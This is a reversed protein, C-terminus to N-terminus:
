NERLIVAPDIRGAQLAPLTAAAVALGGLITAAGVFTTLDHPSIGYVLASAFRSAWVSFVAGVIVGAGVLAAARAMVSWAVDGPSAGLAMRIGLENRRRSVAYATVGYLGLGALLMALGGFFGSLMALLRDQALSTDVVATMPEFKPTLDPHVATLAAEVTRQLAAPSPGASRIALYFNVHPLSAGYQRLPMFLAPLAPERLSSFVTDGVVGVVTLDGVPFDGGALRATVRMVEGVAGRGSLFRRAFAKNVIMVKPSDLTDRDDVDRGELIPTGYAAFMGPTVFNSQGIREANASPSTGPASVVFDGRLFGQLPPSISGGAGAVGPAGAAARALRHYLAERDAAPVNQASVSVALVGSREFGLPVSSIQQFTRIFLGASVVLALSLAVQAVIVGDAVGGGSGASGGGSRRDKLADNPAVRTARVAPTVGFLIATAVMVTATFLTVRWDVSLDLAVPASGVSLHSVILGVGAPAALVGLCTGAGSLMASEVLLQRALRWRSAGLAVRVSLEHRRVTSRALLLNAVNACAVLLVLVVVALMLLLPRQFRERLASTGTAIPQIAFPSRLFDSGSTKRMAAARIDPQAARLAATAAEVTQGSRRRIVLNLVAVDPDYRRVFDEGGLKTDIPMAIDFTRGVEVGLFDQPLVGVITLSAHDVMLRTGVVRPDANFRSRWLRDSIVVIQGDPKNGGVDDARTILRGLVPRIGLTQLLDGSFFERYVLERAGGISITSQSCCSTFAGVGDFLNQRRMQDFITFSFEPRYAPTGASSVIALRQPDVVPLKRLILADVLSFIATNAGIGLALSMVAVAAVIKSSLLSRVALRGDQGLGQLLRPRWVDRARDRALATSGLARRAGRAAEAKSAGAAELDREKMARHFELEEGLEADLQRGRIAFSLRRLWDRM